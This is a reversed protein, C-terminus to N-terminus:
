SAAVTGPLWRAFPSGALPRLAEGRRVAGLSPVATDLVRSGPSITGAALGARAEARPLVRLEDPGSAADAAPALAVHMGGLWAVGLAAGVREVERVHQDIGCGSLDGAAEGEAGAIAGAVVLVRDYLVAAAGSVPIRHTHWSAFFREMAEVAATQETPALPRDALYLWVRAADPLPALLASRDTM